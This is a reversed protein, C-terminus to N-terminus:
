GAEAPQQAPTPHERLQRRAAMVGAVAFGAAMVLFVVAAAWQDGTTPPDSAPTSPIVRAALLASFGAFVLAVIVVGACVGFSVGAPTFPGYRRQQRRALVGVLEGNKAELAARNPHEAPLRGLLDLNALIDKRLRGTRTVAVQGAFLATLVIPIVALLLATM